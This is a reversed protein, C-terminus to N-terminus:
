AAFPRDGWRPLDILLLLPQAVVFRSVLDHAWTLLLDDCGRAGHVGVELLM